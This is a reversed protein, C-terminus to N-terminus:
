FYYGVGASFSLSISGSYYIYRNWTPIITVTLFHRPKLDYKIDIPSDLNYAFQFTNLKKNFFREFVFRTGLTINMKDKRYLDFVVGLKMSHDYELSSLDTALGFNIGIQSSFPYIATKIEIQKGSLYNEFFSVTITNNKQAYLSAAFVQLLIFLYFKM